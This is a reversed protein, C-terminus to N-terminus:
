GRVTESRVLDRQPSKEMNRLMILSSFTDILAPVACNKSASSACEFKSGIM